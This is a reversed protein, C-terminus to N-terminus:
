SEGASAKEGRLWDRNRLARRLKQALRGYTAKRESRSLGLARLLRLEEARSPVAAMRGRHRAVYRGMRVLMADIDRQELPKRLRARDLDVLVARVREGRDACLVNDLHLDPHRLGAAFSLRLLTGVAEATRRRLEPHAALFAPLPLADPLRETCLRLRWFAGHRKGIAAIPAVTPVGEARLAVITEIEARVRSPSTYRDKLLSGFTGGRRCPRVVIERGGVELVGVGGRGKAGPLPALAGWFPELGHEALEAAIWGFGSGERLEVFGEPAAM